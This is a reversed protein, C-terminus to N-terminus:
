ATLAAIIARAPQTWPCPPDDGNVRWATEAHECVRELESIVEAAYTERDIIAAAHKITADPYHPYLAIAARLAGKSPGNM